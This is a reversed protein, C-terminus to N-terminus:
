FVVEKIENRWTSFDDNEIKYPLYNETFGIHVGSTKEREFLVKLRRGKMAREFEQKMDLAVVALRKCREHKVNEPIQDPMEAAATGERVSYPFIHIDAFGIKKINKMSEAFDEETEGPFGVIIDTTIATNEFAERLKDAAATYESVTYRRKMRSLTRDCASQHSLHFHPCLNKIESLTKLLEETM